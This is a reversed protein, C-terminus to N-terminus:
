LIATSIEFRVVPESVSPFLVALVAETDGALLLRMRKVTAERVPIVTFGLWGVTVPFPNVHTASFLVTYSSEEDERLRNVTNLAIPAEGVVQAIDHSPFPHPKKKPPETKKESKRTDKLQFADFDKKWGAKPMDPLKKPFAITM